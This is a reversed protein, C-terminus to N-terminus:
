YSAEYYLRQTKFNTTKLIEEVIDLTEKLDSYYWEDYETSGFFFGSCTPLLEKAITDRVEESSNFIEMIRTKLEVIVSKPIRIYVCNDEGTHHTAKIFFHHICNAKRWYAVESRDFWEFADDEWKDDLKKAKALEGKSFRYLHMDLGM